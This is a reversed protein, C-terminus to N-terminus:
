EPDDLGYFRRAEAQAAEFEEDLKRQEEDSFEPVEDWGLAAALRQASTPQPEADPDAVMGVPDTGLRFQNM